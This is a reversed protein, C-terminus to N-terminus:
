IRLSKQCRREKGEEICVTNSKFLSEAKLEKILETLDACTKGIKVAREYGRASEGVYSIIMEDSLELFSKIRRLRKLIEELTM